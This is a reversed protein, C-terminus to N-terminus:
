TSFPGRKEEINAQWRPDVLLDFQIMQPRYHYNNMLGVRALERCAEIETSFLPEEM